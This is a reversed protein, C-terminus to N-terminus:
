GSGPADLDLVRAHMTRRAQLAARVRRAKIKSWTPGIGAGIVRGRWWGVANMAYPNNRM